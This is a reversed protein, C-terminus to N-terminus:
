AAPGRRGPRLRGRASGGPSDGVVVLLRLGGDPRGYIEARAWACFDLDQARYEAASEDQFQHGYFFGGPSEPLAGERVLRELTEVDEATLGRLEGCNLADSSEGTREEFLREVGMEQLKAHKRRSSPSPSPPGRGPRPARAPPRLRVQDLGM